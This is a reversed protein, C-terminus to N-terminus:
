TQGPALKDLYRKISGGFDDSTPDDNMVPIRMHNKTDRVYDTNVSLKVTKDVLHDIGFYEYGAFPHNAEFTGCDINCVQLNTHEDNGRFGFKCGCGFAIKMQHQWPDNKDFISLNIKNTELEEVKQNPDNRGYGDQIVM